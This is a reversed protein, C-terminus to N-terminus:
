KELETFRIIRVGLAELEIEFPALSTLTSVFRNGRLLDEALLPSNERFATHTFFEKPLNLELNQREESFNAVLLIYENEYYRAYTLCRKVAFTGDQAYNLGYYAGQNFAKEQHVLNLVQRYDTLLKSEQNSLKSGKYSDSQLRQLKDLAWYDFITTRGDVSSFGEAEMAREGLEQGFYLLFPNTGSLVLSALAPYGLEARGAFFDSALRQEDHNELFYCMQEQIGETGQMARDFALLEEEGRIIARMTDYMGVKDYLYDFSANLYDNYRHPQYIEALFLLDPYDKKLKPILWAWFAPPVLEAMDCRFGDVGRKAWYDLVQYMKQWTDPIPEFHEQQGNLYDVGYNLKVTEYWDNQSPFASFCDNGTARAPNEEYTSGECPLHLAENPFYYFNNDRDFNQEQKDNAGFNEFGKPMADSRYTRALHNPIFDMIFGLGAKHTRELLADFEQQRKELENALSPAIDYYDKVSYPSGARGKVIEQPDPEISAFSSTTSHELLGIYWVYNCGLLKIYQLAEDDFDSLKGSGNEEITGNPKLDKTQNGWLRPLVSYIIAKKM